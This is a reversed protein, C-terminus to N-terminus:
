KIGCPLIVVDEGKRFYITSDYPKLGGLKKVSFETYM